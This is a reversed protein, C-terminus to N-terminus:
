GAMAAIEAMRRVLDRVGEIRDPPTEWKASKVISHDPRLRMTGAQQQIHGILGEPYAFSNNRFSIAAGKPGADM